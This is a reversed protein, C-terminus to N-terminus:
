PTRRSRTSTTTLPLIASETNRFFTEAYYSSERMDRGLRSLDKTLVMKVEQRELYRLMEIFGPRNFTSGSYGDDVFERILTIGRAQCYQEIATRQNQISSSEGRKFEEDSLRLYQYAYIASM